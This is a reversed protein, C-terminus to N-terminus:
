SPYWIRSHKAWIVDGPYFEEENESTEDSEDTQDQDDDHFQADDDKNSGTNEIDTLDLQEIKEPIVLDTKDIQKM